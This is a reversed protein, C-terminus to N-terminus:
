RRTNSLIHTRSYILHNLGYTTSSWMSSKRHVRCSSLTSSASLSITTTHSIHRWRLSTTHSPFAEVGVCTTNANVPKMTSHFYVRCFGLFSCLIYQQELHCGGRLGKTLIFLSRTNAVDKMFPVTLANGHSRMM